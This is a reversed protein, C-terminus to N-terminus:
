MKMLSFVAWLIWFVGLLINVYHGSGFNKNRIVAIEPILLAAYVFLDGYIVVTKSTQEWNAAFINIISFFTNTTATWLLWLSGYKGIDYPESIIWTWNRLVKDAFTKNLMLYLFVSGILNFYGLARLFNNEM